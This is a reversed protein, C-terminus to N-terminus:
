PLMTDLLPPHSLTSTQLWFSMAEVGTVLRLGVPTLIRPHHILCSFKSLFTDALNRSILLPDHVLYLSSSLHSTRWSHAAFTSIQTPPILAATVTVSKIDVPVSLPHRPAGITGVLVSRRCTLDAQIPTRASSTPGSPRHRHLNQRRDVRASLPHRPVGVIGAL